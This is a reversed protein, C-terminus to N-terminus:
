RVEAQRVDRRPPEDGGGMSTGADLLRASAPSARIGFALTPVRAGSVVPDSSRPSRQCRGLQRECDSHFALTM